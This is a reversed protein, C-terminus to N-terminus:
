CPAEAPEEERRLRARERRPGLIRSESAIPRSTLDQPTRGATEPRALEPIARIAVVLRHAALRRAAEQSSAGSRIENGRLPRHLAGTVLRTVKVESDGEGYSRSDDHPTPRCVGAVHGM